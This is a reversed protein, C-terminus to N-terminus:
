EGSDTTKAQCERFYANLKGLAQTLTAVEQEGLDAVASKIMRAHYIAHVRHALKGAHTLGVLVVRRDEASRQRTVYGKKALKDVASTLTPIAVGLKAAVESMTREREPGVAHITHLESISLDKFQGRSLSAQEVKLITNFTDVLLENLAEYRSAIAKM